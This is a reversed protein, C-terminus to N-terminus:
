VLYMEGTSVPKIPIGKCISMNPRLVSKSLHNIPNQNSYFYIALM